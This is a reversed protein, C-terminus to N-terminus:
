KTAAERIDMPTAGYLRRFCRNFYSLDGFGVDYAIASVQKQMTQPEYLMRHARALRRGLLFASFTTGDNEFLRQLYRPTMGLHSAVSGISIDRCSINEIIHTKAARLRAAGVGRNKAIDAADCMAGLTLAVLDHVHSAVHHRLAPAAVEHDDDLLASGYSTLLKLAATNRPIRHLVADEADVVLPSLMLYPIRFAISCGSSHRVFEIAEACSLLVADNEGLEVERGRGSVSVNGTRNVVLSLDDNGDEILERTRVIRAATLMGSIVQLGPLTRSTVVAEFSADDAPEIDVKLVSHGYHERWM